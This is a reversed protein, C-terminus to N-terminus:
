CSPQYDFMYTLDLFYSALNLNYQLLYQNSNLEYVIGYKTTRKHSWSTKNISNLGVYEVEFVIM